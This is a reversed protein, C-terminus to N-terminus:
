LKDSCSDAREDPDGEVLEDADLEFERVYSKPDQEVLIGIATFLDERLAAEPIHAMNSLKRTLGARVAKQKKSAGMKQWRSLPM